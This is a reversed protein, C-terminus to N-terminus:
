LEARYRIENGGIPRLFIRHSYRSALGPRLCVVKIKRYQAAAESPTNPTYSLTYFNTGLEVASDIQRAVDNMGRVVRGGTAIGLSDFDEDANFIASNRLMSDGAAQTFDAQSIDTIETLGAASSSPDVAYLTIREDLMMNTIQRLAEKVKDIDDSAFAQPDVGPFGGGVWLLNKRGPIRSFSQAVQEIARLSQDLREM